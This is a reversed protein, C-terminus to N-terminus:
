HARARRRAERADAVSDQLAAAAPALDDGLSGCPEDSQHTALGPSTASGDTQVTVDFSRSADKGDTTGPRPVYITVIYVDRGQADAAPRRHIAPVGGDHVAEAAALMSVTSPPLISPWGSMAQALTCTGDTYLVEQYNGLGWPTRHLAGAVEGTGRGSGAQILSSLPTRLVSSGAAGALVFATPDQGNPLRVLYTTPNLQVATTPCGLKATDARYADVADKALADPMGQARLAAVDQEAAQACPQAKSGPSSDDQGGHEEGDAAPAPTTKTPTPTPSTRPAGLSAGHGVRDQGPEHGTPDQGKGPAARGPGSAAGTRVAPDLGAAVLGYFLLGIVVVSSTLGSMLLTLTAMSSHPDDDAGFYRMAGTRELVRRRRTLWGRRSGLTREDTTTTKRAILDDASLAHWGFPLLISTGLVILGWGTMEAGWARALLVVGMGTLLSQGALECLARARLEARYAVTTPAAIDSPPVHRGPGGLVGRLLAVLV